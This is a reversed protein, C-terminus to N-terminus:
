KRKKKKKRKEKKKEKKEKKKKKKKKKKEKRRRKEKGKEVGGRASRSLNWVSVFFLVLCGFPGMWRMTKTSLPSFSGM